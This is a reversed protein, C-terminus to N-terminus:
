YTKFRTKQKGYLELKPRYKKEYEPNSIYSKGKYQAHKKLLEVRKNHRWEGKKYLDYKKFSDYSNFFQRYKRSYFGLRVRSNDTKQIM